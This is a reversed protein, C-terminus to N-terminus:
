VPVFRLTVCHLKYGVFFDELGPCVLSTDYGGWVCVSQELLARETFEDILSFRNRNLLSNQEKASVSVWHNTLDLVLRHCDLGTVGRFILDKM